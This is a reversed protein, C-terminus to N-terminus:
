KGGTLATLIIYDIGIGIGFMVWVKVKKMKHAKQKYAAAYWENQFLNPDPHKKNYLNKTPAKRSCAIAPILGIPGGFLSAFFTGMQAGRYGRYYLKADSRGRASNFNYEAAQEEFKKIKDQEQKAINLEKKIESIEDFKYVFLSNDSTQIKLAQGPNMEIILGRIISGNKLYVVDLSDGNSAVIGTKVGDGKSNKITDQASADFSLIVIIYIFYNKLKM